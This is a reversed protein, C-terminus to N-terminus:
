GSRRTVRTEIQYSKFYKNSGVPTGRSGTGNLEYFRLLVGILMNHYDNTLINGAMDQATFLTANTVATAVTSLNSGVGNTAFLRILQDSSDKFYRVFVNTDTSPHIQIANGQRLAGFGLPTFSSQNGNGIRLIKASNIESILLSVAQRTETTAGLRPQTTGIMRFGFFNTMIVAGVVFMFITMAIMMEPITFARRPPADGSSGNQPRLTM